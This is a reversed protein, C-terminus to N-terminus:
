TSSERGPHNPSAASGSRETPAESVRRAEASGAADLGVKTYPAGAAQRRARATATVLVLGAILGLHEFFENRAAFEAPGSLEWFRHAVIETAGTLSALMGAGLWVYRGSLIILSGALQVAIVVGAWLAAPHLGFHAQIAVAGAFDGLEIVVAILFLSTLALRTILWTGPWDLIADAWRPPQEPLITSLKM